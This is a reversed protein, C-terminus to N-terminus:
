VSSRDANNFGLFVNILFVLRARKKTQKKFFGMVKGFSKIGVIFEHGNLGLM